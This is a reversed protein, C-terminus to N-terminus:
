KSLGSGVLTAKRLSEISFLADLHRKEGTRVVLGCPRKLGIYRGIYAKASLYVAKTPPKLCGSEQVM